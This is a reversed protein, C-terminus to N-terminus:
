SFTVLRHCLEDRENGAVSGGKNLSGPDFCCFLDHRHVGELRREATPQVSRGVLLPEGGFAQPQQRKGLGRLQRVTEAVQVLQTAQGGIGAGFGHVGRAHGVAEGHGVDLAQRPKDLQHIMAHLGEHPRQAISLEAAPEGRGIGSFVFGAFGGVQMSENGQGGARRDHGLAGAGLGQELFGHPDDVLMEPAFFLAGQAFGEVAVPAFFLSIAAGVAVHVGGFGKEGQGIGRVVRAPQRPGQADDLPDDMPM